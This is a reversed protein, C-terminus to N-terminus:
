RNKVCQRWCVNFILGLNAENRISNGAMFLPDADKIKLDCMTLFNEWPMRWRADSIWKESADQPAAASNVCGKAGFKPLRPLTLQGGSHIVM